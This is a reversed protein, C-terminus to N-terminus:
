VPLKVGDASFQVSLGAFWAVGDAFANTAVIEGALVGALANVTLGPKSVPVHVTVNLSPVFLEGASVIVVDPDFRLM